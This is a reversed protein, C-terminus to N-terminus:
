LLHVTCSHELATAVRLEADAISHTWEAVGALAAGDSAVCEVGTVADPLERITWEVREHPVVYSAYSVTFRLSLHAGTSCVTNSGFASMDPKSIGRGCDGRPACSTRQSCCNLTQLASRGLRAWQPTSHSYILRIHSRSSPILECALNHCRCRLRCTVSTYGVLLPQHVERLNHPPILGIVQYV